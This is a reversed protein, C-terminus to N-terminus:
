EDTSPVNRSGSYLLMTDVRPSTCSLADCVTKARYAHCCDSVEQSVHPPRVASAAPEPSSWGLFDSTAPWVHTTDDRMRLSTRPWTVLTM